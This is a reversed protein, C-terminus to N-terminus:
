ATRRRVLFFLTLAIGLVFLGIIGYILTGNGAFQDVTFSGAPVNNVYVTYTGPDNRNVTFHVESAQGSAVTVGQALEEQGNVYLTVRASGNSAGKNAISAAIEVDQGPAVRTNNVSAKQVLLNSMNVPQQPTVPAALNTGYGGAGHSGILCGLTTVRQVGPDIFMECEYPTFIYYFYYTTCPLLGTVEQTYSWCYTATLTGAGTVTPNSAASMQPAPLRQSHEGPRAGYEIAFPSRQVQSIPGASGQQGATMGVMRVTVCTTWRIVASTSTIDTFRVDHVTWTAIVPCSSDSKAATAPLLYALTMLITLLVLPLRKM